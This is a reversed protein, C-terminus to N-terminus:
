IIKRNERLSVGRMVVLSSVFLLLSLLIVGWEGLTPVPAPPVFATVSVAPGCMMGTPMVQTVDINTGTSYENNGLPPDVCVMDGLVYSGLIWGTATLELSKLTDTSLLYCPAGSKNLGSSTYIGNYIGNDCSSMLVENPQAQLFIGISFVILFFSSIRKMSILQLSPITFTANQIYPISM